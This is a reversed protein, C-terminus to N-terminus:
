IHGGWVAGGISERNAGTVSRLVTPEERWRLVGLLAMILAEKYEIIESAALHIQIEPLHHQIRTILYDNYAGGGTVMMQLSESNNKIIRKCSKSIQMAIHETYTCLLDDNSISQQLILPMIINKGFQNSLSKPYPQEYYNLQNLQMLLHPDINGRSAMRGKDDFDAGARAALSNLISNAPCVDFGVTEEQHVSINAIGGINLFLSFDPFLKKEGLPVLPAGQGGFALDMTRLDSIVPIGTIAAIAAGEGLQHTMGKDPNHFVTHGHSAIMQVKYDLANKEIFQQIVSGIYKGYDIHLQLYEVASLASAKSLKQKWEDTYPICATCQIEYQWQQGKTDFIVYALDIGDLSSGSMMGIAKYTM